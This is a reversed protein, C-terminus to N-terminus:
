KDTRIKSVEDSIQENAEDQAPANDDTIDQEEPATVKKPRGKKTTTQKNEDATDTNDGNDQVDLLQEDQTEEKPSFKKGYKKSFDKTKSEQPQPVTAKKDAKELDKKVIQPIDLPRVVTRKGAYSLKIYDQVNLAFEEPKLDEREIEKSSGDVLFVYDQVPIKVGKTMIAIKGNVDRKFYTEAFYKMYFPPVYGVDIANSPMTGYKKTYSDMLNKIRRTEDALQSKIAPEKARLENENKRSAKTDPYMDNLDYLKNYAEDLKDQKMLEQAKNYISEAKSERMKIKTDQMIKPYMRVASFLAISIVILSVIAKVPYKGKLEEQDEETLGYQYSNQTEFNGYMERNQDITPLAQKRIEEFNTTIGANAPAQGRPTTRRDFEKCEKIQVWNEFGDRWVYYTWFIVKNNLSEKIYSSTYPGMQHEGDHVFWLDQGEPATGSEEVPVEAKPTEVLPQGGDPMILRRDFEAVNYIFDWDNYGDKFLYDNFKLNGSKLMQVVEDKTYPGYTKRNTNVYWVRNETM